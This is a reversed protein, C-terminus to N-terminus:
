ESLWRKDESFNIEDTLVETVNLPNIETIIKNLAETTDDNEELQLFEKDTKTYTNWHNKIKQSLYKKRPYILNSGLCVRNILM